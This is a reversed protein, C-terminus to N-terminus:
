NFIMVLRRKDHKFFIETKNQKLESKWGPKELVSDFDIDYFNLYCVTQFVFEAYVTCNGKQKQQTNTLGHFCKGILWSYSSESQDEKHNFDYSVHSQKKNKITKPKLRHPPNAKACVSSRKVKKFFLCDM